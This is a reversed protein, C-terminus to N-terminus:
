YKSAHLFNLDGSQLPINIILSCGKGPSSKLFTNGNYLRTREYINSLGLGRRTNQPDFGVGDDTIQLRVQNSACHLSIDVNKAQSYKVINNTQEQIIRFLTFKKCQSMLEIDCADSHHFRINFIGTFRIEDILKRINAVLSDEKLDPMVLNRSLKRIEEIALKLIDQAKEKIENFHDINKEMLGLYLQGSTLIQNINDHLEHGIRDREEEQARIIAEAIDKQQKLKQNMLQTEQKRSDSVDQMSGIMRIPEMNEYVIFARTHMIRFRGDFCQFRYEAEWSQEKKTFISRIGKEVEERDDVHICQYYWDLNLAQNLDTGILDHFSQNCYIQGSQMNWDWIAESAAQTIYLLRSNMSNEEQRAQYTETIDQAEGGTMMVGESDQIPFVMLQYVYEKGDAMRSKVICEQQRNEELVLRNKEQLIDAIGAPLVEQLKKGFIAPRQQLYELLTRNAFVLNGEADAIWNFHPSQNLFSTLLAGDKSPSVDYGLCM